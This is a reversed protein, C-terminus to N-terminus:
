GVQGWSWVLYSLVALSLFAVVLYWGIRKREHVSHFVFCALWGSGISAVLSLFGIWQYSVPPRGTLADWFATFVAVTMGYVVGVLAGPGNARKVFLALFFLSFLPPFFLSSTKQTVELYNGPVYRVGVSLCIVLIGISWAIRHNRRKRTAADAPESSMRPLLDRNLVATISNVGSDVSSMGAAFLAAMVMGSLGV